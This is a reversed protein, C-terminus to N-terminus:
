SVFCINLCDPTLVSGLGTGFFLADTPTTSSTIASIPLDFVAVGDANTGGNGFVGSANATGIGGDGGTYKVNIVRLKQGAPVMCSGGVYVVNGAAVSGSTIAFAYTLSGGAIWGQNTATGNNNVIITYPTLGFNIPKTALLEVYELCSDTGTPNPFFESIVLGPNQASLNLVLFTFLTIVLKQKM